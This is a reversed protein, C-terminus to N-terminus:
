PALYSSTRSERTRLAEQQCVSTPSGREGGREASGSAGCRSPCLSVTGECRARSGLLGDRIPHSVLFSSLRHLVHLHRQTRGARRAGLDLDGPVFHPDTFGPVARDKLLVRPVDEYGTLLRVPTDWQSLSGM